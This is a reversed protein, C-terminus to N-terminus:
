GQRQHPVFWAAYHLRYRTRVSGRCGDAAVVTFLCCFVVFSIAGHTMIFKVVDTVGDTGFSIFTDLMDDEMLNALDDGAKRIIEEFDFQIVAFVLGPGFVIYFQNMLRSVLVGLM